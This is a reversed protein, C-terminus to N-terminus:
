DPDYGDNQDLSLLAKWLAASCSKLKWKGDVFSVFLFRNSYSAGTSRIRLFEILIRVVTENNMIEWQIGFLRIRSIIDLGHM